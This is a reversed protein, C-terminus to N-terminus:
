IMDLETKIERMIPMLIQPVIANGLARLRDMRDPLGNSIGLIRSFNEYGWTDKQIFSLEQAKANLRGFFKSEHDTHAVAIWRVRKHDAGIDAASLRYVNTRYGDLKRAFNKITKRTVNESIVFRPQVEQIIGLMDPSLDEAVIQGHSATSFAQCPYGGTLLDIKTGDHRYTKIDEHIPVTPWHKRLVKQCFKDIEVFAHIKHNNNWVKSAAIAFGGIGSFLDLHKM